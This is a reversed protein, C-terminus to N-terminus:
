NIEKLYEEFFLLLKSGYGLGQHKPDVALYWIICGYGLIVEAVLVVILTNEEYLGYTFCDNNNFFQVFWENETDVFEGNSGRLGDQRLIKYIDHLESISLRKIM